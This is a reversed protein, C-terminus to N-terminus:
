ADGAESFSTEIQAGCTRCTFQVIRQQRYFTERSLYGGCHPCPHNFAWRRAAMFQKRPVRASPKAPAM